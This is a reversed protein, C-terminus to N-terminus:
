LKLSLIVPAHDSGIQNILIDAGQINKGLRQDVFFYDMRWGVNRDRARTKMDWYSYKVTQPHLQRFSDVFGAKIFKDLWKREEILFGSNKKNAKPRALDIPQHATNVDGAFIVPKKIQLKKVYALFQHYFDLKYKLREPGSGGNPFYVNLLFFEKLDILQVRGEKSLINVSFDNQVRLQKLRSFVATGSYGKKEKAGNFFSQYKDPELIAESLVSEDSVKTEQLLVLDFRDSNLFDALAKPWAARIGNVNWSVLNYTKAM